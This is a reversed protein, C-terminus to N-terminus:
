PQGSVAEIVLAMQEEVSFEGEPRILSYVAIDKVVDIYQRIYEPSFGAEWYLEPCYIHKKIVEIKKVGTIKSLAVREQGEAQIEVLAQLPLPEGRFCDQTDVLYKDKDLYASPLSSVDYGLRVAADRMLRQQAFAPHVMPMTSDTYTVVSIDDALFGHGSGRLAASLTSKGAGSHGALIVARGGIDICSGHIALLGRQIYVASMCTGLLYGRLVEMDADPYPEVTISDGNKIEYKAINKMDLRFEAKSKVISLRYDHPPLIDSKTFVAGLRISVQSAGEGEAAIWQPIELESAIHLGYVKYQYV